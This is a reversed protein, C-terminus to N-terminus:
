RIIRFLVKWNLKGRTWTILSTSVVIAVFYEFLLLNKFHKWVISKHKTESEHFNVWTEDMVVIQNLFNPDNPQAIHKLGFRCDSLILDDVLDINPFPDKILEM